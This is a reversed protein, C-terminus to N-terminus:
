LIDAALIAWATPAPKPTHTSELRQEVKLHEDWSNILDQVARNDRGETFPCRLPRDGPREGLLAAEYCQLSHAFGEGGFKAGLVVLCVVGIEWFPLRMQVRKGLGDSM